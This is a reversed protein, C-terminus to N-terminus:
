NPLKNTEGRRAEPVSRGAVVQRMSWISLMEMEELNAAFLHSLQDLRTFPLSLVCHSSDRCVSTSRSRRRGGGLGFLVVLFSNAYAGAYCLAQKAVRELKKNRQKPVSLTIESELELSPRFVHHEDNRIKRRVTFYVMCTCIMGTLFSFFAVVMFPTSAYIAEHPLCDDRSETYTCGLWCAGLVPSPAFAQSRVGVIAIAITLLWPWTHLWPEISFSRSRQMKAGQRVVMLFYIGLFCSYLYSALMFLMLVGVGACTQDNGMAFMLNTYTPLMFPQLIVASTCLFDATSLGLM